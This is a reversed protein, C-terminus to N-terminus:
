LAVGSSAFPNTPVSKGSSAPNPTEISVQHEDDFPTVFPNMMDSSHRAHTTTLLRTVPTISPSSTGSERGGKYGRVNEQYGPFPSDVGATSAPGSLFTSSLLSTSAKPLPKRLSAKKSSKSIPMVLGNKTNWDFIAPQLVGQDESPRHQPRSQPNVIGIFGHHLPVTAMMASGEPDQALMPSVDEPVSVEHQPSPAVPSFSAPQRRPPPPPPVRRTATTSWPADAKTKTENLSPSWRLHLQDGRPISDVTLSPRSAHFVDSGAQSQSTDKGLIRGFWTMGRGRQQQVDDPLSQDLVTHHADASESRGKGLAKRGIARLRDKTALARSEPKSSGDEGFFSDWSREHAPQRNLAKGGVVLTEESRSQVRIPELKRKASGAPSAARSGMFPPFPSPLPTFTPLQSSIGGMAPNGGINLKKEDTSTIGGRFPIVIGDIGSRQERQWRRRRRNELWHRGYVNWLLICIAMLVVVGWLGMFISFMIREKKLSEAYANVLKGILGHSDGNNGNGIAAAAIPRAAENVSDPSLVLVSENVRPMDIKLNDHLFTLANEIADVKSGIFCKIFEQAPAELITGHFLTSVANQVDDYFENITNNLTTTTGNVWGFVGNNITTQIVDVRGNVDNAYTSSQNYMSANIATAITNSLDVTTAAARDSFKAVLPGMALLQIEVCLLGFFGILFCALAPPHFIYSFFWRLNIHQSPSLRLRASLTNVIRTILPHTSDLQLLLLNHDSLTIEPVSSLPKVNYKAPDSMWAQRIYELHAKMCRWKYWTLLCNLGILLLAVLILIVFGIKAMKVIDHGLDDVVSTDLQDCFFVKNQDPVPLASTDFSLGDFTNNIDAKVLEFPQDIITDIKQKLDDVSPITDNLKTLADQFSSPLQINQLGDLSPVTIQPPTINGFPNVKNIADIASKIVDNAKAIDNQISTRLGNAVNQVLSNLEQVAAILIELGGRVVLELFCLFTSRYIDVIFNIIAEMVTLAFILAARAGHISGNVADTFQQNTALAMYRPMSAATTAAREAAQCSALLNDKAHAIADKSADLSLQLRFAIFLLSLIPYALWTLSLLHPLQLYPTMSFSSMSDADYSPPSISM